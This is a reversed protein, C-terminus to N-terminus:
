GIATEEFGVAREVGRAGRLLTAEDFKRGILQVGFPLRDRSLGSPVSVAPLGALNVPITFVDSLYMAIPDSAKEGLKFAPSPSTPLVILDCSEFAARFDEVVLSRVQQAKLYYADYYGASLVYTGLLIRRKVEEGFGEARTSNYMSDLDRPAKSRFGYKVGDYRALNASAEANAIIYYAAVAVDAHPLDVDCLSAGSSELGSLVDEFNAGVGEGMHGRLFDRPVGLKMGECGRELSASFNPVEASSSTSDRQDAGCIVNLVLAADEVSRTIPGIQDFSSAFAVLGYRSVRGYTPKLGVVGCFSAPQRISGGTDSGLAVFATQAAVAAASGGSSGGPVRSMDWPNKVPGFASNENSSGMGFEDCNTRGAVIAGAAQLREVATASFPSRYHALMKSGCATHKGAVCINDKVAVPIGALPPERFRGSDTLRRSRAILDDEFVEIYAGIPGDRSEIANVLSRAIDLPSVDGRRLLERLQAITLRHLEM